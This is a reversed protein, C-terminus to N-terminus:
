PAARAPVVVPEVAIAREGFPRTWLVLVPALMLNAFLAVFFTWGALVGVDHFSQFPPVLYAAFGLVLTLTSSVIGWGTGRIARRVARPYDPDVQWEERVRTFFHTTMDVTIGLAVPLIISTGTRLDYGAIGMLGLTAMLPVVNPPLCLLTLRTSRLFFGIFPTLLAFAGLVSVIQDRGVIENGRAIQWYDGLFRVELADHLDDHVFADVRRRLARLADTGMDTMGLVVVGWHRTPDILDGLDTTRGASSLVFLYQEVLAQDDPVGKRGSADPRAAADLAKVYDVVSWTKVVDPQRALFGQLAEIEHLHEPTVLSGGDRVRLGVHTQFAGGLEADIVHQAAQIPHDPALERTAYQDREIRTTAWAGLVVTLVAVVGITRPWALVIEASRDLLDVMAGESAMRLARQPPPGLRALAGPMLTAAVFYTVLGAVAMNNGFERTLGIHGTTLALFGVATTVAAIFGPWLTSAVAEVATDPGFGEHAAVEYYRSIFFSVEAVGLVLMMLPVSANTFTLRQGNSAMFGVVLVTAVGVVTLPLVVAPVTRFCIFLAVAMLVLGVAQSTIMGQLVLRAYEAETIPYGTFMAQFGSPLHQEVASRFAAVTPARAAITRHAPDVLALIATTTGNTSVLRRAYLPSALMPARLSSAPMGDDVLAAPPEFSLGDADGRIYPVTALSYVRDVHPIREVDDSMAAIAKIVGDQFVDPGRLIAVLFSGAHDGFRTDMERALDDESNGLFLTRFSFDFELGIAKWGAVACLAALIVAFAVDHRILFRSTKVM